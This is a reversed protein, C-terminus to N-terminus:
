RVARRRAPAAHATVEADVSCRDVMSSGCYADLQQPTLETALAGVSPLDADVNKGNNLLSQRLWGSYGPRATLIVRQTHGERKGERLARDLKDQASASSVSGFFAVVAVCAAFGRVSEKHM